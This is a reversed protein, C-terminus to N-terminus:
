LLLFGVQLLRREVPVRSEITCRNQKIELCSLATLAPFLLAGDSNFLLNIPVRLDRIGTLSTLPDRHGRTSCTSQIELATLKSLQMLAALMEPVDVSYPTCIICLSELQKLIALRSDPIEPFIKDKESNVSLRKLSTFHPLETLFAQRIGERKEESCFFNFMDEETYKLDAVNRYRSISELNKAHRNFCINPNVRECLRRWKKCVQRCEHLGDDVIYQFVKVLFDEQNWLCTLEETELEAEAEIVKPEPPPPPEEVTLNEHISAESECREDSFVNFPPTVHFPPQESHEEPPVERCSCRIWVFLSWCRM